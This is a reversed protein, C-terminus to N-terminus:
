TRSIGARRRSRHRALYGLGALCLLAATSPEPTPILEGGSGYTITQDQLYSNAPDAPNYYIALNGATLVKDVDATLTNVSLGDPPANLLAVVQLLQLQDVTLLGSGGSDTQLTEGADLTLNGLDLGGTAATWTLTHTHMGTDGPALFELESTGLANQASASNMNGSVQFLSGSQGALSSQASVSLDTTRTTSPDNLFKGGTLSLGSSFTAVASHTTVTGSSITVPGNFNTTSYIDMTGGTVNVAGIVTTTGGALNITGNTTLDSTGTSFIGYGSITGSNALAHNNNNFEGGSLSIVGFNKLLGQAVLVEAPGTQGATASIVGGAGNSVAGTLDLTGGTANITGGSNIINSQINGFGEIQGDNTITGGSLQATIASLFILGSNTFAPTIKLSGTSTLAVLGDAANTFTATSIVGTGSLTGDNVMTGAGAITGNAMELTGQSDCSVGTSVSLTNGGLATDGTTVVAGTNTVDGLFLTAASRGTVAINGNITISFGAPTAITSQGQVIVNNALDGNGQLESGELTIAGTGAGNETGLYITSGSVTTGGTYNSAVILNLTGGGEVLLGGDATVGLAPDHTLAVGVTFPKGATDIIAGGAQVNIMAGSFDFLTTGGAVESAQLTGGNFNFVCSGNASIPNEPILTGGADLNFTSVSSGSSNLHLAATTLVGGSLNYTGVGGSVSGLSLSGSVSVTGGNQTFLGASGGPSGIALNPTSIAGANLTAAATADASTGVFFYNSSGTNVTGGNMIFTGSTITTAGTLSASSLTLTGTGTKNLGNGAVFAGAITAQGTGDVEVTDSSGALTVNANVTLNAGTGVTIGSGSNGSITLTHTTTNGTNSNIVV